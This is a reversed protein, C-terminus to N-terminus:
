GEGGGQSQQSPVTIDVNFVANAGSANNECDVDQGEIWMYIRVKTIGSTLTFLAINEDFGSVTPHSITVTDFKASNATKNADGLKIATPNAGTQAVTQTPDYTIVDKIGDYAIRTAGTQTTTINYVDKANKVGEATHVDYNPEWISVVSSTGSNLKQIDTLQAGATTHGKNVFAIRAANTIGTTKNSTVESNKTLLLDTDADVKFFLDFAIYKGAESGSGRTDTEKTATLIYDGGHTKVEGYYMPLYGSADPTGVTSVPEMSSPLQNVIDTYDSSVATIDGTQIISKWTTGDVSIQLGNKAKVNVQLNEVTVTQNSTFWAYTSVILLIATLLLLLILLKLNSQRKNKM